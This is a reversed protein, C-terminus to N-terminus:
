LACCRRSNSHAKTRESLTCQDGCTHASNTASSIEVPFHQEVDAHRLIIDLQTLVPFYPVERPLSSAAAPVSCVSSPGAASAASAPLQQSSDMTLDVCPPPPEVPAEWKSKSIRLLVQALWEECWQQEGVREAPGGAAGGTAQMHLGEMEREAKWACYFPLLSPADFERSDLTSAEGSPQRYSM